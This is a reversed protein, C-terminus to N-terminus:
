LTRGDPDRIEFMRMKIRNVKELDSPTGGGARIGAHMAAADDIQLFLIASGEVVGILRRAPAVIPPKM